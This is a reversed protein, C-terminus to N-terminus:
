ASGECRRGLTACDLFGVLWGSSAWSRCRDGNVWRVCTGIGVSNTVGREFRDGTISISARCSGGESPEIAPAFVEVTVSPWHMM